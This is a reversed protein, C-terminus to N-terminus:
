RPARSQLEDVPRDLRRGARLVTEVDVVRHLAEVVRAEALAVHLVDAVVDLEPREAAGERRLLADDEEDVLDVLRVELERVIEEVLEIAHAEDIPSVPSSITAPSRGITTM